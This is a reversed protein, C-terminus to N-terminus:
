RLWGLWEVESVLWPVEGWSSRAHGVFFPDLREFVASFNFEGVLFQRV